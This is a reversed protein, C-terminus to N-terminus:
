EDYFTGDDCWTPVTRSAREDILVPISGVREVTKRIYTKRAQYKRFSREQFKWGQMEEQTKAGIISVGAALDKLDAEQEWM